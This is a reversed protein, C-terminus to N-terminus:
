TMAMGDELVEVCEIIHANAGPSPLVAIVGHASVFFGLSREIEGAGPFLNTMPMCM